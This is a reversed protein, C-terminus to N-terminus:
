GELCSVSVGFVEKKSILSLLGATSRGSIKVRLVSPKILFNSNDKSSIVSPTKEAFKSRLISSLTSVFQRVNSSIFEFTTRYPPIFFTLFYWISFFNNLSIGIASFAILILFNLWLKYATAEFRITYITSKRVSSTTWFNAGMFLSILVIYTIPSCEIIYPAFASIPNSSSRFCWTKGHFDSFCWLPM